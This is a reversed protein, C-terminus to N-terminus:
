SQCSIDKLPSPRNANQVRRRAQRRREHKPEGKIDLGMVRRVAIHKPAAPPHRRATWPVIDVFFRRQRPDLIDIRICKKEPNGELKAYMYLYHSDQLIYYSALIKLKASQRKPLKEGVLYWITKRTADYWHHDITRFVFKFMTEAAARYFVDRTIKRQIHLNSLMSELFTAKKVEKWDIDNLGMERMLERRCPWSM